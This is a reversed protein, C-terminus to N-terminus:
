TSTLETPSARCFLWDDVVRLGAREFLKIADENSRQVRWEIRPLGYSAAELAVHRLLAAGIGKRRAAHRVFVDEIFATRRSEFTSFGHYWACFGLPAGDREALLFNATPSPRSLETALLGETAHLEGSLGEEVALEEILQRLSAADSHAAPRM